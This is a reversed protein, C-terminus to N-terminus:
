GHVEASWSGWLNMIFEPVDGAERNEFWHGVLVKLSHILDEDIDERTAGYGCTFTIEVANAVGEATNPWHGNAAPELYCFIEDKTLQYDTTTTLVGATAYYGVTDISVTPPKPIRIFRTCTPFRQLTMKYTATFAQRGTYEQFKTTAAKILLGLETLQTPDDVRLFTAMEAIPLIAVPNTSSLLELHM